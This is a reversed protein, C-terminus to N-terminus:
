TKSMWWRRKFPKPPEEPEPEPELTPEPEIDDYDDDDDFSLTPYQSNAGPPVTQQNGLQQNAVSQPPTQYPPSMQPSLWGSVPMVGSMMLPPSGTTFTQSDDEEETRDNRLEYKRGHVLENFLGELHELKFQDKNEERLEEIIEGIGLVLDGADAPKLRKVQEFFKNGAERLDEM